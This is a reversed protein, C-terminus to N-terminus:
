LTLFTIRRVECTNRQEGHVARWGACIQSEVIGNKLSSDMNLRFSDFCEKKSFIELVVKLLKTSVSDQKFPSGTLGYGIAIANETLKSDVGVEPLCAPRIYHSFQVSKNM